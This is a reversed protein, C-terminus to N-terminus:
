AATLKLSAFITPDVTRPMRGLGEFEYAMGRFDGGTGGSASKALLPLRKLGHQHVVGNIDPVLIIMQSANAAILEAFEKENASYGKLKFKLPHEGKTTADKFTLKSELDGTGVIVKIKKWFDAADKFVYQEGVINTHGPTAPLSMEAKTKADAKLREATTYYFVAETGGFNLDDSNEVFDVLNM